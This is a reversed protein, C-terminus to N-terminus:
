EGIIEIEPELRIGTKRLVEEKVIEMLSIVDEAKAKGWNVIFNAHKISIQAEGIKRGKLDVKDILEGASLGPPNKFICGASSQHLPQTERRKRLHEKILNAMENKDKKELEMEVELVVEKGLNSRRYDFDLAEKGLFSIRAGNLAPLLPSIVTSISFHIRQPAQASSQGANTRTSFFAFASSRM